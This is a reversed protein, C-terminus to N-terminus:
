QNSFKEIFIFGTAIVGGLIIMGGLWLLDGQPALLGAQETQWPWLARLSGLMFGAMTAMTITHHNNMLYKLVRIFLALGTLAGAVFVAIVLMNRDSVAGLVSQYLGMALLMFSGSVGPLILACVAIAAAAFIMILPPETKEAATYGTIIFIFIASLCFSLIAAIRHKQFNQLGIMRIPVALSVVIMGLFLARATQPSDAVFTHMVESLAFVTAIMGFGVSLLFPWEVRRFAAALQSRDRLLCRVVNLLADGNAIAREYIGTALAVTGGSVGPVLEALGIGAGIFAHLLYTLPNKHSVRPNAM